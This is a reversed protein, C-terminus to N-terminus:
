QVGGTEVFYCYNPADLCAAYAADPDYVFASEVMQYIWDNWLQYSVYNNQNVVACRKFGSSTFFSYYRQLAHALHDIVTASTSCAYKWGAPSGGFRINCADVCSECRPNTFFSSAFFGQHNTYVGRYCNGKVCMTSGPCVRGCAGCNALDHDLDKECGDKAIDKNCDALGPACIGMCAGASCGSTLLGHSGPALCAIGCDGCNLADGQLDTECGTTQATNHCSAFGTACTGSCKGEACSRVAVHDTSCTVACGGCNDPDGGTFVECGDARQDHNCDTYGVACQSLCVGAKCYSPTEDPTGMGLLCDTGEPAPSYECQGTGANCQGTPNCADGTTCPLAAGACAGAACVDDLTCLNGDDCTTGDPLAANSCGSKSDCVGAGHCQDSAACTQTKGGVCAGQECRDNLTCANADDCDQGDPRASYTCAGMSPDCIGPNQCETPAPCEVGICPDVGPHGADKSSSPSSGGCASALLATLLLVNKLPM